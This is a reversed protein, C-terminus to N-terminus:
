ATHRLAFMDESPVFTEGDVQCKYQSVWKRPNSDTATTNCSLNTAVVFLTSEM